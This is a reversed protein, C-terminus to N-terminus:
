ISRSLYAGRGSSATIRGREQLVEGRSLTYVPWGKFSMGEYVSYDCHGFLEPTVRREWNVDVIAFDADAGPAILGKRPYLGFSKAAQSSAISAITTLPVGRKHYGETILVPLNLGGGSFGPFVSWLDTGKSFKKSRINPCNDSGLATITGNKIGSWLQERDSDTHIPPNVKAKLGAPASQDLALYHACTEVTVGQGTLWPSNELAEVSTGSTLHVIYLNGGVVHNLYLSMLMSATEAYGPSTQAFEALTEKFGRAKCEQAAWRQIDMDESHVCLLLKPSISRLQKLTRIFDASDLVLADEAGFLTKIVDQYNRYFKFSTVGYASIISETEALHTETIAGFSFAYDILSNAAADAMVQPATEHYSGKARYYNVITTIGGIASTKTDERFDEAMSNYIGLHQHPDIVGPMVHLGTADIVKQAEPATGPAYSGVIRGGQVGIDLRAIREGPFVVDGGKIVLEVSM